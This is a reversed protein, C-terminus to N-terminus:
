ETIVNRCHKTGRIYPHKKEFIQKHLKNSHTISVNKYNQKTVNKHIKSTMKITQITIYTKISNKNYDTGEFM